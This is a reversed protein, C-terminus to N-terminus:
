VNLTDFGKQEEQPATGRPRRTLPHNRPQRQQLCPKMRHDQPLPPSPATPWLQGSADWRHVCKQDQQCKGPLCHEGM